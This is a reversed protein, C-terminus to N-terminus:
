RRAEDWGYAVWSHGGVNRAEIVGPENSRATAARRKARMAMGAVALLASAVLAIVVVSAAFVLALVAALAAAACTALGGGILILTRWPSNAQTLREM